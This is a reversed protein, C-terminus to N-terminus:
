YASETGQCSSPLFKQAIDESECLYEFTDTIRPTFIIQGGAIDPGAGGNDNMTVIIRGTGPEVYHTSFQNELDGGIGLSDLDTAGPWNRTNQAFEAVATKTTGTASFAEGIQARQSYDQYAPIAIAALVGLIFILPM